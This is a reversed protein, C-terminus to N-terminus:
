KRLSNVAPYTEDATIDTIHQVSEMSCNKIKFM